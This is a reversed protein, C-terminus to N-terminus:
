ASGEHTVVAIVLAFSIISQLAFPLVNARLYSDAKRVRFHISKPSALVIILFASPLVHDGAESLLPHHADGLGNWM